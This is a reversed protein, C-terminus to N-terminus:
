GKTVTVALGDTFVNGTNTVPQTTKAIIACRAISTSLGFTNNSVVIGQIPGLSGSAINLSCAGGDIWNGSVTLASIAGRDQTTQLASSRAGEVRNNRITINSGSQVQFTDAHSPGGNHTPDVAYYLNDHLWSNEVLVDSGTIHVSDVVGRIETRRVTFNNGIIGNVYPSPYAAAITSDVITFSYAGADNTILGMSGTLERGRIVSNKITVGSAKIRVLGHVDLGDIVAGAQTVTLDGEHVTLKTGAPVGVSTSIGPKSTSTSPPATTATPSPSPKPTATPTPTPTPTPSPKATPAPTATATPSPSASATATPKPAPAATPAVTPAVTPAASATPKPAVPSPTPTASPTPAYRTVDLVALTVKASADTNVVRVKGAAAAPLPITVNASIAKQVPTTYLPHLGCTAASTTAACVSIRTPKWAWKSTVTLRVSSADSPVSPLTVVTSTGWKVVVEVSPPDAAASSGIAAGAGALMAALAVSTALWPRKARPTRVNHPRGHM